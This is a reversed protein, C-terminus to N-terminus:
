EDNIGKAIKVRAIAEKVIDREVHAHLLAVDASDIKDQYMSEIYLLCELPWREM